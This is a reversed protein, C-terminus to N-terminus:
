RERYRLGLRTMVEEVLLGPKSSIEQERLVSFGEDRFLREPSDFTSDSPEVQMLMASVDLGQAPEALVIVTNAKRDLGSIAKLEDIVGPSLSPFASPLVVVIAAAEGILPFVLNHWKLDTTYLKAVHEPPLPDLANVVMLISVHPALWEAIRHLSRDSNESKLEFVRWEFRADGFRSTLSQLTDSPRGIRIDVTFARLLLVFPHDEDLARKLLAKGPAASNRERDKALNEDALQRLLAFRKSVLEYDQPDGNDRISELELEGALLFLDSMAQERDSSYDPAERLYRHLISRRMDRDAAARLQTDQEALAAAADALEGELKNMLGDLGLKRAKSILRNVQKVLVDVDHQNPEGLGSPQMITNIAVGVEDSRVLNSEGVSALCRDLGARIDETQKTLLGRVLAAISPQRRSGPSTASHIGFALVGGWPVIGLIELPTKTKALHLQRIVEVQQAVVRPVLGLADPFVISRGQSDLEVGFTSQVAIPVGCSDCPSGGRTMLEVHDIVGRGAKVSGLIPATFQQKAHCAPCFADITAFLEFESEILQMAGESVAADPTLLITLIWAESASAPGVAEGAGYLRYGLSTPLSAFRMPLIGDLIEIEELAGQLQALGQTINPDSAAIPTAEAVIQRVLALPAPANQRRATWLHLQGLNILAGAREAGDSLDAAQRLVGITRNLAHIENYETARRALAVGLLRLGKGELSKDRCERARVVALEFLTSAETLLTGDDSGQKQDSALRESGLAILAMASLRASGAAKAADLAQNGYQRVNLSRVVPDDAVKEWAAASALALGAATNKDANAEGPLRSLLNLYAVYRTAAASSWPPPVTDLLTLIQRVCRTAADAAGEARYRVLARDLYKVAEHANAERSQNPRLCLIAAALENRWAWLTPRTVTGAGAMAKEALSWAEDFLVSRQPMELPAAELRALALAALSGAADSVRETMGAADYCDMAKRFLAEVRAFVPADVTPSPDIKQLRVAINYALTGMELSNDDTSLRMAEECADITATIDDLSSSPEVDIRLRARLMSIPAGIQAYLSDSRALLISRAKEVHDAALKLLGVSRQKVYERAMVDAALYHIMGTTISSKAEQLAKETRGELTNLDRPQANYFERHSRELLQRDGESFEAVNNEANASPSPRDELDRKSM